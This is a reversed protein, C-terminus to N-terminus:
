GHTVDGAYVILWARDPALLRLQALRDMMPDHVHDPTM